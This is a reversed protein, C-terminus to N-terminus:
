HLKQKQNLINKYKYQSNWNKQEKSILNGLALAIGQSKSRIRVFGQIVGDELLEISVNALADEGFTSRAYMNASLFGCQDDSTTGSTLIQM